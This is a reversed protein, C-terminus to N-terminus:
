PASRCAEAITALCTMAQREEQERPIGTGYRVEEFLRTLQAVAEQPLGSGRLGREFERPTMAEQRVIGRERKLIEGMEFYCRMITDELDAGAELAGLAWEAKEALQELPTAQRQGQSWVFWAIGAAAGATLLALAIAGLWVLWGPPHFDLEVAQPAPDGPLAPGPEPTAAIPTQTQQVQVPQQPNAQSVWYLVAVCALLGLVTLLRKKADASFILYVAFLAVLVIALIGLVVTVLNLLGQSLTRGQGTNTEVPLRLRPAAQGPAFELSSLGTALLVMAVIALVALLV